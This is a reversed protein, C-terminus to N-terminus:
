RKVEKADVKLLALMGEPNMARQGILYQRALEEKNSRDNLDPLRQAHVTCPNESLKCLLAVDPSVWLVQNNVSALDSAILADLALTLRVPSFQPLAAMVETSTVHGRRAAAQIAFVSEKLALRKWRFTLSAEYM